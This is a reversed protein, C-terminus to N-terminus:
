KYKGWLIIIASFILVFTGQGLYKTLQISRAPQSDLSVLSRFMALTSSDQQSYLTEQYGIQLFLFCTLVTIITKYLHQSPTIKKNNNHYLAYAVLAFKFVDGFHDYFDGFATVLHYKRALKGDVCDLYYAVIFLVAGVAFHQYYVAGASLMGILISITTVLNPTFGNQYYWTLHTDIFRLLWVDIPCEYLDPLKNVM